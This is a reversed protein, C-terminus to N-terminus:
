RSPPHALHLNPHSDGQKGQVIGSPSKGVELSLQSTELQANRHNHNLERQKEHYGVEDMILRMNRTKASEHKGSALDCQPSQNAYGYKVHREQRESTFLYTHARTAIGKTHAPRQLTAM